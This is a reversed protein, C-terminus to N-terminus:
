DSLSFELILLSPVVIGPRREGPSFRIPSLARVLLDAFASPPTLVQIGHISGDASIRICLQVIGSETPLPPEDPLILEPTDLALPRKWLSHVDFWGFSPDIIDIPALAEEPMIEKVQLRASHTPASQETELGIAVDHKRNAALDTDPLIQNPVTHETAKPTIFQSKAKANFLTKATPPSILSQSAHVDLPTVTGLQSELHVELPLLVANLRPLPALWSGYTATILLTHVIVSIGFAVALRPTQTSAPALNPGTTAIAL